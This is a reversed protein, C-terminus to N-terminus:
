IEDTRLVQRPSGRACYNLPSDPDVLWEALGLRNQPAGIPMPPLSAPVGAHVEDGKQDYQGRRLVHAARREDLERSVM